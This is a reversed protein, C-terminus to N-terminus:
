AGRPNQAHAPQSAVHHRGYVARQCRPVCRGHSRCRRIVSTYRCPAPSARRSCRVMALPKEMLVHKGAAAAKLVWEKHLACPLPIYVADVGADDLLQQYSGYPTAVGELKAEAVFAKAKDINRSAIAVVATIM